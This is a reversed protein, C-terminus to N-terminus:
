VKSVIYKKVEKSRAFGSEDREFRITTQEKIMNYVPEPLDIEQGFQLYASYDNLGVALDVEQDDKSEIVCRVRPYDKIKKREEVLPKSAVKVMPETAGELEEVDIKAKAM